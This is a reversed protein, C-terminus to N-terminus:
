FYMVHSTYDLPLARRHERSGYNSGWWREGDCTYDNPDAMVGPNLESVISSSRKRGGCPSAAGVAIVLPHNAPYRITNANENGTAAFLTVGNNYAYQLAADTAPDGSIAAGFSM